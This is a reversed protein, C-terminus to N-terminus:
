KGFGCLQSYGLCPLGLAFDSVSKPLGLTPRPEAEVGLSVEPLGRGGQPGRKGGETGSLVPFPQRDKGLDFGAMAGGKWRRSQGVGGREVM